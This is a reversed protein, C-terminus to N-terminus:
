LYIRSTSPTRSDSPGIPGDFSLLVAHQM